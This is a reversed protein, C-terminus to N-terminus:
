QVMVLKTTAVRDAAYLKAFYVGSALSGADWSLNHNGAKATGVLPEAVLSGAADYVALRVDSDAPLGYSFVVKNLTVEASLTLPEIPLIAEQIADVKTVRKNKCFESTNGETDTATATVFDGLETATTRVAWRGQNDAVGSGLFTIGDGYENNGKSGIFVEITAFGRFNGTLRGYVHNTYASDIDPFNMNENPGDDTDAGDNLTQGKPALDIGLSDNDYISNQSIRNRDSEPGAVYIGRWGNNAIECELVQCDQVLGYLNVGNMANDTITNQMIVHGNANTDEMFIGHMKNYSIRNNLISDNSVGTFYHIGSGSNGVDEGGIGVGILNGLVKGEGGYNGFAYIGDQPNGSIVNGFTSDEGGIITGTPSGFARHGQIWIGHGFIGLFTPESAGTVDTGIFNGVIMNDDSDVDFIAISALDNGALVNRDEPNAGGITNHHAGNKMLIGFHKNGADRYGSTDVGFRCGKIQNYGGGDILIGGGSDVTDAKMNIFIIGTILNSDSEITLAYMPNDIANGEFVIGFFANEAEGPGGTNPTSGEQSFGNIFTSNDTLLPLPTDLIIYYPPDSMSQIDFVITDPGVHSNAGAIANLLSGNGPNAGTTVVITNAVIMAFPLMILLAVWKSHKM